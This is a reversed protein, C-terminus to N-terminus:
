EGSPHLRAPSPPRFPASRRPESAHGTAGMNELLIVSSSRLNGIPVKVDPSETFECVPLLQLRQSPMDQSDAHKDKTNYGRLRTQWRRRCVSLM